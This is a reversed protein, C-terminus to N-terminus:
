SLVSRRGFQREVRMGPQVVVLCSQTSAVGDVIALCDFCVGMMCFPARPTERVPTTRSALSKQRLLVAAITEGSEAEVPKADIYITLTSKGPEHLKKFM